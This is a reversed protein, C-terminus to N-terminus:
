AAHDHRNHQPLLGKAPALHLPVTAGHRECLGQPGATHRRSTALGMVLRITTMLGTGITFTTLSPLLISM